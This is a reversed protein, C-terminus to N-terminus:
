FQYDDAERRVSAGLARLKGELNEYGRDLHYIRRITTEGAAALAAVVLAASARLDSALVETGVLSAPGRVIASVDTREVDAGLRALEALYGFREPFVFDKVVSVGVAQTLVAALQAQCDTPIAPFPKAHIECNKLQGVTQTRWGSESVEVDVGMQSLCNSVAVADTPNFGTIDVVGNSVAAIAAWTAAEIRDGIVAHDFGSLEDVGDVELVRDTSGDDISIRAGMKQLLSIFDTVEPERAAHRLVSRGKARCAAALVNCTGTVTAGRPGALSIEAGHLTNAEVVVDGRDTRIDAGLAALGRLHIDIPRHGIQCGGPLAVRAKRRQAVLPGLVCISARMQRVLHYGADCNTTETVELRREADDDASSISVGLTALLRCMTAVDRVKPVRRLTCPEDTLLAAALCPLAANKAGSVQVTGALPRKGCIVLRDM